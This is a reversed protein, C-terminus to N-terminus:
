LFRCPQSSPKGFFQAARQNGRLRMAAPCSLMIKRIHKHSCECTDDPARHLMKTTILIDPAPIGRSQRMINACARYIDGHFLMEWAFREYPPMMDRLTIILHRHNPSLSDFMSANIVDLSNSDIAGQLRRKVHKISEKYRDMDVFLENDRAVYWNWIM